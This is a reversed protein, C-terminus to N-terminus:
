RSLTPTRSLGGYVHFASTVEPAIFPDLVAKGDVATPLRPRVDDYTVGPNFGVRYLGLGISDIPQLDFEDLPTPLDPLTWTTGATAPAILRINYSTANEYRYWSGFLVMATAAAGPTEAWTVTRLDTGLVVDRLFPLQGSVDAAFATTSPGRHHYFQTAGDAVYRARVDLLTGASPLTEYAVVRGMNSPAYERELSEFLPGRDIWQSMRVNVEDVEAPFGSLTATLQPTPTFTNVAITGGNTFAQTAFYAYRVNGGLHETVLLSFPGEPCRTDLALTLPSTTGIASGCVTRAEYTANTTPVFSVLMSGRISASQGAQGVTIADGPKVGMVATLDHQAARVVFVNAGTAPIIALANGEANSPMDGIVTGDDTAFVVQVGPAPFGMGDQTLVTVSVEGPGADPAGGDDRAPADAVDSPLVKGCAAVQVCLLGLLLRRM